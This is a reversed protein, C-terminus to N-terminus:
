IICCSRSLATKPKTKKEYFSVQFAPVSLWPQAAADHFFILVDVHRRMTFAKHFTDFILTASYSMM